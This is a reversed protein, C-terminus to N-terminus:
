ESLYAESRLYMWQLVPLAFEKSEHIKAIGDGTDSYIRNILAKSQFCSPSSNM